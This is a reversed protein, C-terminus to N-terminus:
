NRVFKRVAFGCRETFDNDFMGDPDLQRRVALWKTLMPYMAEVLGNAGSLFNLLSWHPRGGFLYLEYELEQLMERGGLTGDVMLLEIMCTDAEYMPSVFAHSAKVFRLSLPATFYSKGVRRRQAAIELIRVTAAIYNDMTFGIESAYGPMSIASGANLVRYSRDICIRALTEMGKETINPILDPFTNLVTALAGGAGPVSALLEVLYNRHPWNERPEAPEPVPNRITILCTNDGNVQYPNVLIECHRNDRLLSGEALDHKLQSWPKVTRVEELFYRERVRLVISYIIGMCGIGVQCAHFWEDDQKLEIDPHRASWQAPDTIGNTPEIRWVKSDSAVLTLSEVFSVLPGFTIGSGHTSTSMVGAITQGDYGGMNLLGLGANWLAENM